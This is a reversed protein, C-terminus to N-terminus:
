NLLSVILPGAKFNVSVELRAPRSGSSRDVLLVYKADSTQRGSTLWYRLQGKSADCALLLDLGTKLSMAELTEHNSIPCRLLRAGSKRHYVTFAYAEVVKVEPYESVLQLKVLIYAELVEFREIISAETAPLTLVIKGERFIQNHSKWWLMHSQLEM